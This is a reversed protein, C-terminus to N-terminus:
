LGAKLALYSALALSYSATLHHYDRWVIINGVVAPCLQRGCIADNMDIFTVNHEANAALALDDSPAGESRSTFCKSPTASLCEGPDFKMYPTNRIAVVRAGAQTLKRWLSRLGEIMEERPVSDYNSQSTFVLSPKLKIIEALVKERWEACSLYPQDGGVSARTFPCAAKTFSVFRFKRDKAIRDLAPVWQAAHSDGVLVITTTGAPDGLRCGTADTGDQEQHCKSVYVIPVDRRLRALPPLLDVNAPTPAGSLLAAPGPYSPTGILATDITETNLAYLLAGSAIVCALVGATGYGLPKWWAGPQVRRYREEVYRYSLESLAVTVVVLGVGGALTPSYGLALYFTILPWHWLYISYSRDGIFGLFKSDLGRFRGIRIDGALIVFAAALTPLLAAAGPFPTAASFWIAPALIGSLGTVLLLRRGPVGPRFRPETLVLLGGLALEWLRTQTVFYAKAPDLGTTVVSAILSALFVLSLVGILSRRPSLRRRRTPWIVAIMLIPWVIYFQEEISLSWYHQVPSPLSDAELYSVAISALRWNEVYLASALIQNATEEWRAKSLFLLTGCLTALLVLLAAPLLRRIRRSYFGILSIRGDRMAMQALMGTILYGSIVFFVDVGIYGGPLVDPWLHYAVVLVVAVGRLGQIEPRFGNAEHVPQL